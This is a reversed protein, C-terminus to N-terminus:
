GIQNEECITGLWIPGLLEIRNQYLGSNYLPDYQQGTQNENYLTSLGILWLLDIENKIYVVDICNTM